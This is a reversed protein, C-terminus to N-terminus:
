ATGPPAAVKVNELPSYTNIGSIDIYTVKSLDVIIDTHGEENILRQFEEKLILGDDSTIVGHLEVHTTGLKRYIIMRM